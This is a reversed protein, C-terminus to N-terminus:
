YKLIDVWSDSKFGLESVVTHDGEAQMKGERHKWFKCRYFPSLVKWLPTKINLHCNSYNSLVYYTSWNLKTWDSLWTWSKSVEHVQACWAERDMVLEWFKGLSIEMSNTIDALWRMRQWRSRRRGEIKGLVLTKESSDARRM